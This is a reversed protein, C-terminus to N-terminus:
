NLNHPPFEPRCNKDQCLITLRPQHKPGAEFSVSVYIWTNRRVTKRLLRNVVGRITFYKRFLRTIRYKGAIPEAYHQPDSSQVSSSGSDRRTTPVVGGPLEDAVIGLGEGAEKWHGASTDVFQHNRAWRLKGEQDIEVLYNLGLTGPNYKDDAKHFYIM